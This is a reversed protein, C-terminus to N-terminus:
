YATKIEKYKMFIDYWSYVRTVNEIELDRNYPNDFCFIKTVKAMFPINKPSDDIMLDIKYEKLKDVKPSVTFVVEDYYIDNKKLWERVRQRMKENHISTYRATIIYIKNGDEKLMKIVESAYRRAKYNDVYDNFYKERYEMKQEDNYNVKNFEYEYPNKMYGLNNEYNFKSMCELVFDNENTLVGDIDIGINM